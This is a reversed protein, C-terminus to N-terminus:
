RVILPLYVHRMVLGHPGAETPQTAHCVTCTTLTGKHGQLAIFKIADNRQNSPAIAHTSDHCGECYVGGHEKSKRYLAQDQQITSGHCDPSDCRPEQLWPNPNKSVTELDGHCDICELGYFTSMVGRLCQTEPGPHCNYCGELTSPMEEAHKGHMANSFSPVDDAGPADLANSSHCEACLIPRRDMLPGEHGPPYEDMEEDHKTLINTEVAGTAIEENGEGNDDHCYECHMETSVPVVTITRALEEGTTADQVVITATQYPYRVSPASDRYETLPIGVAEFRDGVLDMTGSMGVGTLGINPALPGTLGLLDQFLWQANQVPRYASTDWFDTKGVSYTNDTFFFTVTIGSTIIQPTDGVRIVQAWLNNFPPLVALDQFRPNYCHMGLDNWALVITDGAAAVAGRNAVDAPALVQPDVEVDVPGALEGSASVKPWASSSLVLGLGAVLALCTVLGGTWWLIGRQRIRNASV